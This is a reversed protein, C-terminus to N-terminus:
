DELEDLARDLHPLADACCLKVIKWVADEESDKESDEECDRM